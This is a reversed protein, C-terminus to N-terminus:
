KYHLADCFTLALAVDESHKMSTVLHCASYSSGGGGGLRGDPIIQSRCLDSSDGHSFFHTISSTRVPM